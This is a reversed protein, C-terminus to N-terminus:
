RGIHAELYNRYIATVAGPREEMLNIFAAMVMAKRYESFFAPPKGVVKAIRRLQSVDPDYEGILMRQVQTKSMMVAACFGRHSSLHPPLAEILEPLVEVLPADTTEGYVLADFDVDAERPMPRQGIRGPRANVQKIYDGLLAQMADPRANFTAVWAMEAARGPSGTLVKLSPYMQHLEEQPVGRARRSRPRGKEATPGTM